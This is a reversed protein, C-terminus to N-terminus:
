INYPILKKIEEITMKRRRAYDKLQEDDISGVSFYEGRSLMVGCLSEAPSIMYSERDLKMHTTMEASLLEFIERKLSHDPTAPYGFAMRVGQYKERIVEEATLPEGVEYGWM